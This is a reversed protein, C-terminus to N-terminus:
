SGARRRDLAADSPRAAQNSAPRQLFRYATAALVLAIGYAGAESGIRRDLSRAIALDAASRTGTASKAVGAREDHGGPRQRHPAGRRSKRDHPDRDDREQEDNHSYAQEVGIARLRRGYRLDVDRLRELVDVRSSHARHCNRTTLCGELEPIAGRVFLLRGHRLRVVDDGRGHRAVVRRM